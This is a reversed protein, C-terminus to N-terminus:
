ATVLATLPTSFLFSPSLLNLESNFLIFSITSPGLCLPYHLKSEMDEEFLTLFYTIDM